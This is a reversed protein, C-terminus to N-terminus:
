IQTLEEDLSSLKNNNDNINDNFIQTNLDTLSFNEKQTTSAEEQEKAYVSLVSLDNGFLFILMPIFFTQFLVTLFSTLHQLFLKLSFKEQNASVQNLQNIKENASLLGFVFFFGYMVGYFIALDYYIKKETDYIKAIDLFNEKLFSFNQENKQHSLEYCIESANQYNYISKFINGVLFNYYFLFLGLFLLINIVLFKKSLKFISITLEVNSLDLSFVKQDYEDFLQGNIEKIIKGKQKFNEIIKEKLAEKSHNLNKVFENVKEPWFLSLILLSIFALLLFIPLIISLSLSLLFCFRNFRYFLGNEPYLKQVMERLEKSPEFKQSSSTYEGCLIINHFSIM